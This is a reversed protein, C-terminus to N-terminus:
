HHWLDARVTRTLPAVYTHACTYTTERSRTVSVSVLVTDDQLVNASWEQDRPARHSDTDNSMEPHLEAPGWSGPAGDASSRRIALLTKQNTSYTMLLEGSSPVRALWSKYGWETPDVDARDLVSLRSPLKSPNKVVIDHQLM